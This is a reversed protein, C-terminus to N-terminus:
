SASSSDRSKQRGVEEIRGGLAIEEDIMLTTTTTTTTGSEREDIMNVEM